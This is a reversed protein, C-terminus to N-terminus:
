QKGGKGVVRQADLWATLDSVRYRVLRGIRLHPLRPEERFTMSWLKRASVNLVQATQRPTLLLPKLLDAQAGSVVPASSM